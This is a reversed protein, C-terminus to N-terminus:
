GEDPKVLEPLRNALHDLVERAAQDAKSVDEKTVPYTGDDAQKDKALAWSYNSYTNVAHRGSEFLRIDVGAAKVRAIAAPVKYHRAAARNEWKYRETATMDAAGGDRNRYVVVERQRVNFKAEELAEVAQVAADLRQKRRERKDEVRHTRRVALLAIVAAIVAALGGLGPSLLFEGM